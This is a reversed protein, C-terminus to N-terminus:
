SYVTELLRSHEAPPSKCRSMNLAAICVSISLASIGSMYQCVVAAQCLMSDHHVTM